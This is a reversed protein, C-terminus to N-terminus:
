EYDKKRFKRKHINYLIVSPIIGALVNKIYIKFIDPKTPKLYATYHENIMRFLDARTNLKRKKYDNYSLHYLVLKEKMNYLKYGKSYLSIWLAYDECRKYNPYGHVDIIADKRAMITPHLLPSSQLIQKKTVLGNLASEGWKDKGDYYYVNSGVVSISNNKELFDVQTEIRKPLSYDDTDMRAVYKGNSLRLAKNLSSVLGENKKNRILKIRRDNITSVIEKLDNKGCDDVIIIELNKYTQQVISEISQILLGKETNYESMIVSVKPTNKM